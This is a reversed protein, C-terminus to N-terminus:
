PLLVGLTGAEAGIVRGEHHMTVCDPWQQWTVGGGLVIVRGDDWRFGALHVDGDPSPMVGSIQKGGLPLPHNLAREMEGVMGAILAVAEEADIPDDPDPLDNVV